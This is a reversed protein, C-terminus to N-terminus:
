KVQIYQAIKKKLKKLPLETAESKLMQLPLKSCQDIHIYIKQTCIKFSDELYKSLLKWEM